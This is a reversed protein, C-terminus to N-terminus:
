VGINWRNRILVVNAKKAKHLTIFDHVKSVVGQFEKSRLELVLFKRRTDGLITKSSSQLMRRSQVSCVKEEIPIYLLTNQRKQYKNRIKCAKVM